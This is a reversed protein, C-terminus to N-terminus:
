PQADSGRRELVHRRVVQYVPRLGRKLPKKLNWSLWQRQRLSDSGSALSLAHSPTMGRWLTFRGLILCGDVEHTRVTPESTFLFRIGSAAASRAVAASYFGGPVSAVQVEHGLVQRLADTSDRWEADLARANLRSIEAPHTHSHSGIIHGSADMVRLDAASVFGPTGIRSATILFHGAMGHEALLSAIRLASAGGDDFTLCGAGQPWPTSTIPLFHQGHNSLRALHAAFDQEDLKYHAAAAGPFGSDDPRGPAIVDHYMLSAINM